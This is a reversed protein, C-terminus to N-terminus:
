GADAAQAELNPGIGLHKPHVHLLRLENSPLHEALHWVQFGWESRVQMKTRYRQREAGVMM